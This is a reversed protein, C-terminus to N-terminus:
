LRHPASPTQPPPYLSVEVLVAAASCGVACPVDNKQLNELFPRVGAAVTYM